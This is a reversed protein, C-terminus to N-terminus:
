ISIQILTRFPDFISGHNKTLDASENSESRIEQVLEVLENYKFDFSVQLDSFREALM